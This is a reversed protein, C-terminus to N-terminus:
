LRLAHVTEWNKRMRNSENRRGCPGPFRCSMLAKGELRLDSSLLLPPLLFLSLRPEILAAILVCGFVADPQEGKHVRLFVSVPKPVKGHQRKGRKDGM